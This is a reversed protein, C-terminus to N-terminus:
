NKPGHDSHDKIINEGGPWFNTPNNIGKVNKLFLLELRGRKSEVKSMQM